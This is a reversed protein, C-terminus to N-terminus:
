KESISFSDVSVGLHPVPHGKADQEFHADEGPPILVLESYCLAEVSIVPIRAHVEAVSLPYAEASSYASTDQQRSRARELEAFTQTINDKASALEALTQTLM